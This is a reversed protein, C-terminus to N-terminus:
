PVYYINYTKFPIHADINSRTFFKLTFGNNNVIVMCNISGNM